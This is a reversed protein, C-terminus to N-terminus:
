ALLNVGILAAVLADTHTDTSATVPTLMARLTALDTTSQGLTDTYYKAVALENQFQQATGGWDTDTTPKSALNGFVTYIVKGLSWGALDLASAIDNMASQKVSATASDKVINNVLKTALDTSSLTTPYVDTFQSKSTFVDVIQQISMPYNYAEMLQNMYTVGPVANFAVIFFHWLSAPANTYSTHTQSAIQITKDGFQLVEANRITYNSSGDNSAVTAGTPTLSLKYNSSAGSIVVTDNGALGDISYQGKAPTLTDNTATGTLTNAPFYTRLDLTDRNSNFTLTEMNYLTAHLVGSAGSISDVHVSGDSAKTISYSSRLETGLSLTDIGGLGDLSFTGPSIVTWSDNGATGTYTAM